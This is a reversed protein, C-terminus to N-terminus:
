AERYHHSFEDKTALRATHQVALTAGSHQGVRCPVQARAPVLGDARSRDYASRAEDSQSLGAARGEREVMATCDATQTPISGHAYRTSKVADAVATIVIGQQSM